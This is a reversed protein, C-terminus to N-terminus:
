EEMAKISNILTYTCYDEKYESMEKEYVLDGFAKNVINGMNGPINCIIKILVNMFPLMLIKHGNVEAIIKVMESTNTYEKNQPFFLGKEDNDIMLKLFQSLNDIYLMSRKNNVMPFVPLKLALKELMPYNGKCGKGYIMPPRIIVVRFVDESLAKIKQEAKWKSDGYFNSPRPETKKTIIKEKCGGYVSMSSIFIFQKVGAKKAKKAVDVALDTNIKYYLNKLEEKGVVNGVNRHVIGAVHLVIDYSSFDYKSWNADKMDLTDIKYSSYCEMYREFSTGIYSNAGTILIKKM